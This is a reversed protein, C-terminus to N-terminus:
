DQFVTAITALADDKLFPGNITLRMLMRALLFFLTYTMFVGTVISVWAGHDEASVKRGAM